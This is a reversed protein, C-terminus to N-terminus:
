PVIVSVINSDGHVSEIKSSCSHMIFCIVASLIFM